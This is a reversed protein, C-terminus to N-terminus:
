DEQRALLRQYEGNVAAISEKISEEASPWPQSVITLWRQQIRGYTELGSAGYIDFALTMGTVFPRTPLIRAPDFRRM